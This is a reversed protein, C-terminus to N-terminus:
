RRKWANSKILEELESIRAELSDVRAKLSREVKKKDPRSKITPIKSTKPPPYKLERLCEYAEGSSKKSLMCIRIEKTTKKNCDALFQVRMKNGYKLAAQKFYPFTRYHNYVEECSSDSGCGITVSLALSTILILLTRM